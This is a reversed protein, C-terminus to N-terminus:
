IRGPLGLNRVFRVDDAQRELAQRMRDSYLREDRAAELEEDTKPTLGEFDDSRFPPRSTFNVLGLKEGTWFIIDDNNVGGSNLATQASVIKRALDGAGAMTSFISPTNTNEGHGVEQRRVETVGDREFWKIYGSSDSFAIRTGHNIV